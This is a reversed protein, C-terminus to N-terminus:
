VVTLLADGNPSWWLKGSIDLAICKEADREMSDQVLIGCAFPAPMAALCHPFSGVPQWQIPSDQMGLQNRIAPPTAVPYVTSFRAFSIGHRYLAQAIAAITASNRTDKQEQLEMAEQTLPIPMDRLWLRGLGDLALMFVSAKCDKEAVMELYIFVPLEGSFHHRATISEPLEKANPTYLCQWAVTATEPLRVTEPWPMLVQWTEAFPYEQGAYQCLSCNEAAKHLQNQLNNYQM